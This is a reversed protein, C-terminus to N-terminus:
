AEKSAFKIADEVSKFRKLFEKRGMHQEYLRYVTNGKYEGEKIIFRPEHIAKPERNEGALMAASIAMEESEWKTNNIKNFKM